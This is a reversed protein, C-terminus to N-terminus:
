TTESEDEQPKARDRNEKAQRARELYIHLQESIITRVLNSYDLGLAEGVYDLDKMIDDPIRINLQRGIPPRGPSQGPAPKKKSVPQRPDLFTTQPTM